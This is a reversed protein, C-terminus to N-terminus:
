DIYKAVFGGLVIDTISNFRDMVRTKVESKLVSIEM